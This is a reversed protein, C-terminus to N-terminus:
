LDPHHVTLERDLDTDDISTKPDLFLVLLLHEAEEPGKVYGLVDVLGTCSYSKVLTSVKGPLEPEAIMM